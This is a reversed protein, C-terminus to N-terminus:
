MKLTLCREFSKGDITAINLYILNEKITFKFDSINRLIINTASSYANIYYTVVINGLNKERPTFYIEKKTGDLKQIIIKNNNVFTSLTNHEVENQIYLIAENAYSYSRDNIILKNYLFNFKLFMPLIMAIIITNLGISVILEIFTIGKSTKLLKRQLIRM